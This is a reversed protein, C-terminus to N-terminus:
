PAPEKEAPPMPLSILKGRAARRRALWSALGWRALEGAAGAVISAVIIKGWTM